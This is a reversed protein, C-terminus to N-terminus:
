NLICAQVGILCVQITCLQEFNLPGNYYQQIAAAKESCSWGWLDKGTKAVRYFIAVAIWCAIHIVVRVVKLTLRSRKTNQKKRFALFLGVASLLCTLLAAGALMYTPWLKTGKAWPSTRGPAPINRTQYFKVLIYVMIAEMLVTLLCSCLDAVGFIIETVRVFRKYRTLTRSSNNLEPKNEPPFGPSYTTSSHPTYPSSQDPNLVEYQTHYYPQKQEYGFFGQTPQVWNQQFSTTM